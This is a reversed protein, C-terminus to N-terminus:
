LQYRTALRRATVEEAAHDVPAAEPEAYLTETSAPTHDAM